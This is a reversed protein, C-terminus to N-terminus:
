ARAGAKKADFAPVIQVDPHDERYAGILEELVDQLSAAAYVNLTTPEAPPSSCAGLMTLGFAVAIFPRPGPRM